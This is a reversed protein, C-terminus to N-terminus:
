PEIPSRTSDKRARHIEDLIREDEETFDAALAGASRRIGDGPLRQNTTSRIVVEVPQGDPLGLPESLIITQGQITGTALLNM